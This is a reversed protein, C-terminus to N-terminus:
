FSRRGGAFFSNQLPTVMSDQLKCGFCTLLQSVHQLHVANPGAIRWASSVKFDLKFANSVSDVLWPHLTWAAFGACLRSDVIADHM